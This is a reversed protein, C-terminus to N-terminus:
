PIESPISALELLCNAGEVVCRHSEDIGIVLASFILTPFPIIFSFYFLYYRKRPSDFSLFGHGFAEYIKLHVDKGLGHLRNTMRVSQDALPDLEGVAIRTPPFKVLIEDDLYLPCMLPEKSIEIGHPVYADRCTLLFGPPVLRDANALMTSPSFTNELALAPYAIFLGKPRPFNEMISKATISTALNGGASDGTLIIQRPTFGFFESGHEWAWKYVAWCDFVAAPYPHKPALRYDVSLIPLKTLNAWQRTYTQHAYSTQGIFGGGHFHIVLCEKNMSNKDCAIFRAPVDPHGPLGPIKVTRHQSVRHFTAQFVYRTIGKEPIDWVFKVFEPDPAVGLFTHKEKAKKVRLGYYVAGSIMLFASYLKSKSAWGRDVLGYSVALTGFFKDYQKRLKIVDSCPVLEEVPLRSRRAVLYEDVPHALAQPLFELFLELRIVQTAIHLIERKRWRKFHTAKLGEMDMRDLSLILRLQDLIREFFMLLHGLARINCGPIGDVQFNGVDKEEDTGISIGIKRVIQVKGELGAEHVQERVRALASGAKDLVASLEELAALAKRRIKESGNVLIGSDSRTEELRRSCKRGILHIEAIIRALADSSEPRAVM